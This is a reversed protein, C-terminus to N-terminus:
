AQEGAPKTDPQASLWAERRQLWQEEHCQDRAYLILGLAERERERLRDIVCQQCGHDLWNTATLRGHGVECEVFTITCHEMSDPLQARLKANDAALTDYDAKDVYHYETVKGTDRSTFEGVHIKVERVNGESVSSSANM